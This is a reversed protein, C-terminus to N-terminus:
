EECRLMTPVLFQHAVEYLAMKTPIVEPLGHLPQISLYRDVQQNTDAMKDNWVPM